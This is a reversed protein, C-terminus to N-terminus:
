AFLVYGALAVMRSSVLGRIKPASFVYGLPNIGETKSPKSTETNFGCPGLPAAAFDLGKARFGLARPGSREVGPRFGQFREQLGWAELGLGRAWRGARCEM